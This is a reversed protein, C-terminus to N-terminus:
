QVQVVARAAIMDGVGIGYNTFIPSYSRSASIEIFKGAFSGDGCGSGCAVPSGWALTSGSGTPCYCSDAASATGSKAITGNNLVAAPGNNVTVKGATTSSSSNGALLAALNGALSSGSTSSAAGANVLAYNASASVASEVCFKAYIAGGFDVAGAMILIFFPAVLGFEIAAAGACSHRFRTLAPRRRLHTM